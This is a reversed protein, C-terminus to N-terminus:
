SWIPVLHNGLVCWISTMFTKTSFLLLSILIHMRTHTYTHMHARVWVHRVKQLGMSQLRGPEETLSNKLWSYQLPSGNGVRPCRGLGPILGADCRHRKCRRCQFAPKRGSHWTPLRIVNMATIISLLITSMNSWNLTATQPYYPIVYCWILQIIAGNISLASRM